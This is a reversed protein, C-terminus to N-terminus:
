ILRLSHAFHTKHTEDLRKQIFPLSLIINVFKCINAFDNCRMLNAKARSRVHKLATYFLSLIRNLSHSKPLTGHMPIEPVNLIFDAM